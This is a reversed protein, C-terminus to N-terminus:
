QHSDWRRLPKSLANTKSLQPEFSMKERLPFLVLKSLFNEKQWIQKVFLNKFINIIQSPYFFFCLM